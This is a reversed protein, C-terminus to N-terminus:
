LVNQLVLIVRVVVSVPLIRSIEGEQTFIKAGGMAFTMLFSAQCVFDEKEKM